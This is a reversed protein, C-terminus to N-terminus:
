NTIYVSTTTTTFINGFDDEIEISFSMLKSTDPPNLLFLSIPSYGFDIYRYSTFPIININEHYIKLVYDSYVDENYNQSMSVRVEKIRNIFYRRESFITPTADSLRPDEEVLYGNLNLSIYFESYRCTDGDNLTSFIYNNKKLVRQSISTLIYYNTLMSENYDYNEKQCSFFLMLLGIFSGITKKM